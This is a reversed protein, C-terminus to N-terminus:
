RSWGRVEAGQLASLVVPACCMAHSALRQAAQREEARWDPQACARCRHSAPAQTSVYSPHHARMAVCRLATCWSSWEAVMGHQKSRKRITCAMRPRRARLAPCCHVASSCLGGCHQCPPMCSSPALPAVRPQRACPLHWRLTSHTFVSPLGQVWKTGRDAEGGGEWHLGAAAVHCVILCTCPSRHM